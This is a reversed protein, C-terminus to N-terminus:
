SVRTVPQDQLVAKVHQSESLAAIGEATTEVTITGLATPADSLRRGDYRTLIEDIEPLAQSASRRIEDITAQRKSRDPRNRGNGPTTNPAKLLVVARLRPKREEM